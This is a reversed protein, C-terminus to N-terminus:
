PYRSILRCEVIFSDARQCSGNSFTSLLCFLPSFVILCICLHFSSADCHQKLIKLGSRFSARGRSGSISCNSTKAMWRSGQQKSSSTRARSKLVSQQLLFQYIGTLNVRGNLLARNEPRNPPFAFGPYPIHHQKLLSITTM